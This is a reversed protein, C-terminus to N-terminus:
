PGIRRIISFKRVPSSQFSKMLAGSTRMPSRRSPKELGCRGAHARCGHLGKAAPDIPLESVGRPLHQAADRRDAQELATRAEILDDARHRARDDCRGNRGGVIRVRVIEKVPVAVRRDHDLRQPQQVRRAGSGLRRPEEALEHAEARRERPEIPAVERGGGPLPARPDRGIEHLVQPRVGLEFAHVTLRDGSFGTDIGVAREINGVPGPRLVVPRCQACQRYQTPHAAGREIRLQLRYALLQHTLIQAERLSVPPLGAVVDPLLLPAQM